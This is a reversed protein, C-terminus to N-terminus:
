AVVPRVSAFNVVEAKSDGGGVDTSPSSVRSVFQEFMEIAPRIATHKYALLHREGGDENRSSALQGILDGLKPVSMPDFEELKRPDFPVCVFGTKPHVCFPSKLLHNIGTTVHADLRPYITNIVIDKIVNSRGRDSLFRRLTNWRKLSVDFGGHSEETEKLWMEELSDHEAALDPPLFSLIRKIRDPHSLLGQGRSDSVFDAFFPQLIEFAADVSPHLLSEVANSDRQISKTKRSDATVLSLYDVVATRSTSDLYRATSDCVWCHVGRRGSFVWLLHEFGFDERLARDLCLVACKALVWCRPCLASSSNPNQSGCCFRVDDYDTLDIDFVLEKWEPKFSSASLSRQLTPSASYVAGIDIKHPCTKVLEKRLSLADNFSQYRVYVDGALSFSFERRSLTDTTNKSDYALWRAFLECPFIRKYFVKLHQSLQEGGDDFSTSM